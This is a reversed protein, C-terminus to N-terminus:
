SEEYKAADRAADAQELQRDTFQALAECVVQSAKLDDLAAFAVGFMLAARDDLLKDAQEKATM